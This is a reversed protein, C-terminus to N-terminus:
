DFFEVWAAADVDFPIARKRSWAEAQSRAEEWRGHAWSSALENWKEELPFFVHEKGMTIEVHFRHGEFSGKLIEKWRAGDRFLM